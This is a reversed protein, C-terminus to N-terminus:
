SCAPRRIMLALGGLAGIAGSVAIVTGPAFQEAAAGAVVIAAGQGLSMGAIALGFAQARREPPAATVFAANAATQYGDCMGSAALILLCAILDPGSAFLALIAGYLVALPGMWRQKLEPRVLRGFAVAGVSSGLAVVALILGVTRAGGHLSHALPAVVGEPVVYFAALWGYLMPTRLAPNGFVLRIADAADALPAALRGTRAIAAPRARVGLRVLLASIAFTAADAILCSRAGLTAVIAGGTAFGIVQAFQYTTLTVATGLVYADGSLVDPYVASRASTFPAGILTVLFLLGVLAALPVGPVVMVVVLAARALDCAIMVQRRPLRDALGSLTIGGIFGPVISAAYTVAALLPSHTRDYVLVTLAVRALQDGVVSALQALWLVRFEAVAFVMRYTAREATESVRSGAYGEATGSLDPVV